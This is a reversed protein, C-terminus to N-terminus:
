WVEGWTIKVDESREFLRHSALREPVIFLHLLRYLLLQVRLLFVKKRSTDM